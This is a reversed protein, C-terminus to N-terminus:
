RVIPKVELGDDLDINTTANLAVIDGESLGGTIEAQAINIVGGATQVNTRILKKDVVRFVYSQGHDDRLAEHPVFLVHSHQATTVIVNVTANPKLLGNADDVTVVCEGVNRTGNAVVTTPAESVHGHWTMGPQADWTITVPQGAALNGIDPEDFYATIQLNSLNAVSVLNEGADVYDYQSVPLYYVTGAIPTRIDVNAYSSQAAAVAAKADALEAQARARDAQGYRQTSHQEISHLTTEDAQLRDRAVAVEDAAAAGQQQLKQLAALSTADQQQQQKARSLNTAFTNREDQSGGQEVDSAALEAARLTSEAHALNALAYQDDMRLLLQGAKVKENVQVYVDKVQGAAQAHAPFDDVLEVKGTASYHRDLDGYTVRTANVSVRQHSLSRVAYFGMVVFILASGWIAFVTSRNSKPIYAM